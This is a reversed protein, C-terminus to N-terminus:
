VDKNDAMKKDKLDAMREQHKKKVGKAMKKVMGKYAAGMSKIKQDAKKELKEKQGMALDAMDKGKGAIKQMITKRAVKAAKKTADQQSLPKLMNRLKKKINSPKKAQIAMAKAKKIRDMFSIEDIAELQESRFNKFTQM